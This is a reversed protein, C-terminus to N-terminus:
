LRHLWTGHLADIVRLFAANGAGRGSIRALAFLFVIYGLVTVVVAFPSM